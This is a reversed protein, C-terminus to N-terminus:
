SGWGSRPVRREVAGVAAGDRACGHVWGSPSSSKLIAEAHGGGGVTGDVFRQGPKPRVAELIEAVMVPNHTFKPVKCPVLPNLTTKWLAAGGDGAVLASRSGSERWRAHLGSDRGASWHGSGRGM